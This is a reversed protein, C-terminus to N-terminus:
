LYSFKALNQSLDIYDAWGNKCALKFFSNMPIASFSVHFISEPHCDSEYWRLQISAMTKGFLVTFVLFKCTHKSWWKLCWNSEKQNWFSATTHAERYVALLWSWPLLLWSSVFTFNAVFKHNIVSLGALLNWCFRQTLVYPHASNGQM